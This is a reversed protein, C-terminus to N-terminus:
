EFSFWHDLLHPVHVYKREEDSGHSATVIATGDEGYPSRSLIVTPGGYTLMAVRGMGYDDAEFSLVYEDIAIMLDDEDSVDLGELLNDDAIEDFGFGLATDFLELTEAIGEVQTTLSNM